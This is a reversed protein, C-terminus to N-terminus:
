RVKKAFLQPHLVVQVLKQQTYVGMRGDVFLVNIQVIVLNKAKLAPSYTLVDMDLASMSLKLTAGYNTASQAVIFLVLSLHRRRRIVIVM